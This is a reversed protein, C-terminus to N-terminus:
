QFYLYHQYQGFLSLVKLINQLWTENMGSFAMILPPKYKNFSMTTLIQISLYHICRKSTFFDLVFLVAGGIGLSTSHGVNYNLAGRLATLRQVGTEIM